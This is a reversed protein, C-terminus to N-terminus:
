IGIYPMGNVHHGSATPLSGEGVGQWVEFHLHPGTNNGTGGDTNGSKAIVQAAQVTAGDAVIFSDLHMYVTWEGGGHNILVVNGGSAWGPQPVVKATGAKAAIVDTGTPCGLDVGPHGGVGYPQSVPFISVLPYVMGGATPQGDTIRGIASESSGGEGQAGNQSSSAGANAGITNNDRHVPDKIFIDYPTLKDDRKKWKEETGLGELEKSLEQNFADYAIGPPKFLAVGQMADSLGYSTLSNRPESLTSWSTRLPKNGSQAARQADIFSKDDTVDPLNYDGPM